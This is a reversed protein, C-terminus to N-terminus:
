SKGHNEEIYNYIIEKTIENIKLYNPTEPLESRLYAVKARNFLSEAEEKLEELTYKGKKIDLLEERDKTRYVNLEGTELFESGMRLLRICHSINKCDYGFKEVLEKRKRGMYGLTSYKEAKDLQGKAYGTFTKYAKLSYFIEKNDILKKADESLYIYHDEKLNLIPLVNPNSKLLMWMMKKFEYNVLDYEGIFSEVTDKHRGLGIYYDVPAMFIGLLDVDDISNPDSNPVYMNHAISGRYCMLTSNEHFLGKIKDQGM